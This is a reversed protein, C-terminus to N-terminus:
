INEAVHYTDNCSIHKAVIISIPEISNPEAPIHSNQYVKKAAKIVEVLLILFEKQL